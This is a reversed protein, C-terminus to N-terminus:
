ENQANANNSEIMKLLEKAAEQPGKREWGNIGLRTRIQGVFIKKEFFYNFFRHAIENHMIKNQIAGFVNVFYTHTLGTSTTTGKSMSTGEKFINFANEPQNIREIIPHDEDVEEYNNAYLIYNVPYGQIINKYTTVPLVVRANTQTPNMIITRDLQGFAYGPQLDDLRVFAGIETGYGLVEGSEDMSLSGMDDAIIVIDEIQENGITRLAELTESKGAGTDGILLITKSQNEKLFIKVMAGHFPLKGKKMMIINYLTLVMKKLYGFYGFENRNPVASVLMNNKIDDYYITPFASFHDLSNGPVGFLYVADPARNLCEDEALEFLNSLAFGLDYFKEHFYINILLSGVKAPFCLWEDKHIDICDLPNQKVEEFAGTRKNMPPNILLPPYLLIQRIMPITNLKKYCEAPFPIEKPLAITAIEAGARVQRYVNPHKAIINEEIDRYTGRILHTLSEITANFTRYPRKDFSNSKSDCIIFREFERWFNYIYEVFSNLVHPDKIFSESHPVLKPIHDITMKSLYQLINILTQIDKKNIQSPEKGFIKLLLPNKKQLNHISRTLVEKFLTSSLLEEANDCIRDKVKIIIKRDVFKYTTHM